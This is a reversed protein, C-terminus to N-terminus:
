QTLVPPRRVTLKNSTYLIVVDSFAVVGEGSVALTLENDKPKLVGARIIQHWSQPGAEALTHAILQTANLRVSFRPTGTHITRYFIVSLSGGVLGPAHIAQIHRDNQQTTPDPITFGDASGAVTLFRAVETEEFFFEVGNILSEIISM